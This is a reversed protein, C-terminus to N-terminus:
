REFAIEPYAASPGSLLASAKAKLHLDFFAAAYTATIALARAPDIVAPSRALPPQFPMLRLDSSFTHVTGSMRLHLGSKAGRLVAAYGVQTSAASLILLPKALAGNAANWIPSGDIDFVARVRPDDHAVQLVAAGGM